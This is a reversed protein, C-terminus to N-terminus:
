PLATGSKSKVLSVDTSTIAGNATVDARFNSEMVAQGSKSKVDSIDSADVRGDGNTDGLLVSMRIGLDGSHTGDNVDFLGITITQGSAVDILSIDVVTGSVGDNRGAGTILVGTVSGAGSLIAASGVTVPQPFTLFIQAYNNVLGDRCEIGPAGTPPLNIDFDGAGEHSKRSVVSLPHVGVANEVAGIDSGDGSSANPVAPDNVPRTFGRQDFDSTLEPITDRKGQDIAPSNILPAHTLTPGGNDKLPGLMPDTNLQDGTANFSGTGADVNNIGGDNTLNYGFSTVTGTNYVNEGAAGTKFITNGVQLSAVGSNQRNNLIGGGFGNFSASNGSFTSNTVKLMANGGSYGINYIGGGNGASNGSFSSNTVTLNVNGGGATNYIAGGGTNITSNGSFTSNAVILTADGGHNYIGGGGSDSSNGSLTSGNITLIPVNGGGGGENFIGGGNGGPASNGSLTCSNITLTSHSNFIGGGVTTRGGSITVGEITVTHGPAIYFIRFAAANPDRAITLMDEGPGSITIDNYVDLENSTLYIVNTDSPTSPIRNGSIDFTITDGDQANALAQRLSGSGNDNTNTVIPVVHTVTVSSASSVGTDGDKDTVSVTVNYTGSKAYTHNGNFSYSFTNDDVIAAETPTNDGWDVVATYPQDLAGAPDSFTGGISFGTVTGETTKAPSVNPTDVIPAVNAVTATAPNSTGTSGNQDTVSVTVPYSGSQGYTHSGTFSYTFPSDNGSVMADDTAGDGWDIVAIYPQDSVGGPDSFTGSVSFFTPTSETTPPSVKPTDVIPTVNSVTVTASDSTGTSGNQDLVSVTVFYSGDQSYTHNGNFSYSFPNDSGSVSAVDSSGDGWDVQVDYPQDFAGGPDSFTGTVSFSTETGENVQAPSVQPTGVAPAVNEVSVTTASSFGASGNQDTVSVTVFYIGDQTYTHNGNFAYSFPNNDGSVMATDTNGDGWDITASYPQDAAGGPDSLGGSVSFTASGEDVTTPSVIPTDVTPAVNNVSVTTSDSVGTQGNNDTVTVTVLYFGDQSYTHNGNFSYSFPNDNGSVNAVDPNSGDGWDVVATFPKDSAGDSDTFTGNVTFTTSSGESTGSPSVNPTGVIPMGGEPNAPHRM